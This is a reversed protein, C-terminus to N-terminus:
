LGAVVVSAGILLASPVLGLAVVLQVLPAARAARDAERVRADNAATRAIAGVSPAAATGNQLEGALAAYLASEAQSPSAGAAERFATVPDLGRDIRLVASRGRMAAAGSRHRSCRRLAEVPRCGSSLSVAMDGAFQELRGSVDGRRNVKESKSKGPLRGPADARRGVMLVALGALAFAVLM